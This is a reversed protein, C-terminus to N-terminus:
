WKGLYIGVRLQQMELCSWSTKRVHNILDKYEYFKEHCEDYEQNKLSSSLRDLKMEILYRLELTNDLAFPKETDIHGDVWIYMCM